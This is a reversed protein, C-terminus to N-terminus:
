AALANFNPDYPRGTIWVRHMVVALKRAVAVIARKKGAPGGRACLTLGWRKLDCEPGFPGLLRHACQVLLRRLFPNGAKTIHKQPDSAGSQDKAPVLGLFAAVVRSKKFKAPEEITLRFALATIPGVGDIQALRMAVPCAKVLQEVQRDHVAIQESVKGLAELVPVLAPRLEAPVVEGARGAFAATSCSEVRVGFQKLLGRVHNVLKTRVSVLIDRSRLSALDVQAGRSRQQVPALLSLDVRALRALLMADSRDTKKHRGWILEIQRPNAVVVHHGASSLADEVWRSHTGAEVVVLARGHKRLAQVLAPKTTRVRKMEIVSGTGDLVCIESQKDGLDCGVFVANRDGM